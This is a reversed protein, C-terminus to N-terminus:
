KGRLVTPPTPPPHLNCVRYVARGFLADFFFIAVMVNALSKKLKM